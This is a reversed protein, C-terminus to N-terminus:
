NLKLQFQNLEKDRTYIYLNQNTVFFDNILMNPIAIPQISKTEKNYYSLNNKAKLIVTNKIAKINTFGNNKVKYVVSGFYNYCYLYDETLLWSNNYNSTLDLVKSSVPMTTTRVINTNYDYLELHQLDQNFLWLISDFGTSIHTVNKYPQLQNFDLKAVEALRNDLIIITNFNKYFVNIKLPNFTNFSTMKGLQINSYSYLNDDNYKTLVNKSEAYFFGFNDIAKIGTTVYTQKSKLIPQISDQASAFLTFLFCCVTFLKM